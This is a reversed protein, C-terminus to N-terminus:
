AASTESVQMVVDKLPVKAVEKNKAVHQEVLNKVQEALAQIPALAPGPDVPILPAVPQTGELKLIGCHFKAYRRALRAQSKMVFTADQLEQGEPQWRWIDLARDFDEDRGDALFATATESSGGLLALLVVLAPVPGPPDGTYLGVSAFCHGTSVCADVIDQTPDFAM